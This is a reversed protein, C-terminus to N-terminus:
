SGSIEDEIDREIKEAVLTKLARRLGAVTPPKSLVFDVCDSVTADIAGSCMLVPLDNRIAKARRAIEDGDIKPMRRDTVLLDPFKPAAELFALAETPELFAAVEWDLTEFVNGLFELIHPDDDVLVVNGVINSALDDFMDPGDGGRQGVSPLDLVFISGIGPASMIDLYGGVSEVLSKVSTLGVGRRRTQAKSSVFQDLVRDLLDQEMGCGEDQVVIRAVPGRVLEGLMLRATPEFSPIHPGPNNLSQLQLNLNGNRGVMSEIGNKLLNTVARSFLTPDVMIHLPEDPEIHYFAQTIELQSAMVDCLRPILDVLECLQETAKDFDPHLQDLVMRAQELADFVSKLLNSAEGETCHRSLLTASADIAGLFNSFDHSVADGLQDLAATREAESLRRRLDSAEKDRQRRFSIDRTTCLIGGDDLQTLVLDQFVPQGDLSRGVPEGAWRGDRLFIPLVDREFREMEKPLYLETWSRGIFRSTNPDGFMKAHAANMYTFFGDPDTIAIGEGAADIAASLKRVQATQALLDSESNALEEAKQELLREAEVRAAIERHLRSRLLAEEDM